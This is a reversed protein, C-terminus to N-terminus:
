PWRSDPHWPTPSALSAPSSPLTRGTPCADVAFGRRLCRPAAPHIAPHAAAMVAGSKFEVRDVRGYKDFTKELEREEADYEYNGCYVQAPPVHRM